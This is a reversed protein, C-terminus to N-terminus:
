VAIAPQLKQVYTNMYFMTSPLACRTSQSRHVMICEFFASQTCNNIASQLSLVITQRIYTCAYM